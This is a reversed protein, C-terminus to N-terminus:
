DSTRIRLVAKWCARSTAKEWSHQREQESCVTCLPKGTEQQEGDLREQESGQRKQKKVTREARTREQESDLMDQNNSKSPISGRTSM